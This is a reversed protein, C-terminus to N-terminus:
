GNHVERDREHICQQEEALVLPVRLRMVGETVWGTILELSDCFAIQIGEIDVLAHPASLRGGVLLQQHKM